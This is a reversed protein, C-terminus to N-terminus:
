SSNWSRCGGKWPTSPPKRASATPERRWGSRRGEASRGTLLTHPDRDATSVEAQSEGPGEVRPRGRTSSAAKKSEDELGPSKSASKRKRKTARADLQGESQEEPEPDPAPNPPEQYIGMQPILLGFTQDTHVYNTPKMNACASYYDYFDSLAYNMDSFM